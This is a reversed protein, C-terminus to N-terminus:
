AKAAAGTSALVGIKARLKETLDGPELGFHRMADPASEVVYEVGELLGSAQLQPSALVRDVGGARAILLGAANTLAAQLADRHRADVEVGFKTRLWSALWLVFAGVLVSIIEVLAPRVAEVLWSQALVPTAACSALALAPLMAVIRKM